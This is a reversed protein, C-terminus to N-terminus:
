LSVSKQLDYNLMNEIEEKKYGLEYTTSNEVVWSKEGKIDVEKLEFHEIELGVVEYGFQEIMWAYLSLQLNYHVMNCDDLHSIPDFMRNAYRSYFELEKNTNHTKIMGKGALYTHCNSEVGICKTPVTLVAEIKKFYRRESKYLSVGEMYKSYATNRILFPNVDSTFCVHFTPINKKGFGSTTAKILTPKWGLSAVLEMMAKAQWKKTTEMVNRKRSVNFHGDGDMFGRLLELRQSFSARMYIYPIHKNGLLGLNNLETRLGYITRSEAKDNFENHNESIEYGISELYDWIKINECTITGCTRNGDALWLGLLYPKIPLEKEEELKPKVNKIKVSFDQRLLIEIEETTKIFTEDKNTKKNRIEVEWRHEHDAVLTENTDFTIKFCPNYHVESVHIVKTPNGDGDFIINGEEVDGMKIFGEPTPIPTDLALGKWDRIIVQRGPLIIVQDATGAKKYKDNWLRVEPHVGVPLEAIINNERRIVVHDTGKLTYKGDTYQKDEKWNHFATGKVTSKKNESFWHEKILGTARSIAVEQPFSLQCREFVLDANKDNYTFITRMIQKYDAVTFITEGIAADLEYSYKSIKEPKNITSLYQIAKVILWFKEEDKFDMHFKSIFQTASTYVEGAENTYQHLKENFKIM